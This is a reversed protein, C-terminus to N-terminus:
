VNQRSRLYVFYPKSGHSSAGWEIYIDKGAREVRVARPLDNSGNLALGILRQARGAQDLPYVYSLVEIGAGVVPATTAYQEGGWSM